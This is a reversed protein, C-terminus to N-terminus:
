QTDLTSLVPVAPRPQAMRTELPLNVPHLRDRCAANPVTEKACWALFPWARWALRCCPNATKTAGLRWDSLHVVPWGSRRWGSGRRSRKEHNKCSSLGEVLGRDPARGWSAQRGWHQCGGGVLTRTTHQNEKHELSRDILAVVDGVSERDEDQSNEM